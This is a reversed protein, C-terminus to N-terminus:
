LFIREKKVTFLLLSFLLPQFLKSNEVDYFASFDLSKLNEVINEVFQPFRLTHFLFCPYNKGNERPGRGAIPIL